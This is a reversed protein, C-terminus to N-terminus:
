VDNPVLILNPNNIDEFLAEAEAVCNATDVVTALIRILQPLDAINIPMVRDCNDQILVEETGGPNTGYEVCFNYSDEKDVFNSDSYFESDQKSFYFKM